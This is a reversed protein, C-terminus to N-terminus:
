RLARRAVIPEERVHDGEAVLRISIEWLDDGKGFRGVARARCWRTLARQTAADHSAILLTGSTPKTIGTPDVLIEYQEHFRGDQDPVLELWPPLQYKTPRSWPEGPPIPEKTGVFPGDGVGRARVAVAALKRVNNVVREHERLPASTGRCAGLWWAIVLFSVALRTTPIAFIM